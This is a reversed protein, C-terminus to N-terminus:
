ATQWNRRRREDATSFAAKHALVLPIRRPRDYSKWRDRTDAFAAEGTLRHYVDLQTVHFRHYIPKALDELVHPYTSYLSWWGNDYAPLQAILCRLSEDFAGGARGDGLGLRVDWLGWLASMWGNLIHSPPDGPAEELIRGTRTHTVLDSGGEALFPEVAGAALEAFRDDGTALHARVFVSGAQGQPLASCWPPSLKYKAVTVRLPWRLGDDTRTAREEIVGCLSLFCDLARADGAVHREWWGLTLQILQTAPLNQVDSAQPSTTKSTFDIYYGTVARDDFATGIPTPEYGPGRSLASNLAREVRAPMWPLSRMEHLPTETM